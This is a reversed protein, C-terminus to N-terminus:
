HRFRPTRIIKKGGVPVAPLNYSLVVEHSTPRKADQGAIIYDFSYGLRLAKEKGMAYGLIVIAADSQRVGLGGWFRDDYKGIVSGEVSYSNFDTRVILSPSVILNNNFDYDYGGTLTLHNELPNRLESIGFDFESRILHNVSVGVYYTETTYYAGVALDPRIQSERGSKSLLIPDNENVPRYQDFDISQSFVGVRLGFSLKANKIALHYAYSVQAQINNLPGLNDNVVHVGAGSRFRLIPANLSIVQTTPAGGPGDFSTNFGAWQSRHIATLKTVGEVGAYAPNFFLTNYMYQSFQADQQANVGLVCMLGALFALTLKKRM